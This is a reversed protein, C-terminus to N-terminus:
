PGSSGEDDGDGSDASSGAPEDDSSYRGGAPGENDEYEEDADDDDSDFDSMNGPWPCLRKAPPEDFSTDEEEEEEEKVEEASSFGDWSFGDDDSEEESEGIALFRLDSEGDTLSQDDESWVSSDHSSEDGDAIARRINAAHAEQPNWEPTPERFPSSQASLGSSSSYSSSMVASSPNQFHQHSPIFLLFYKCFKGDRGKSKSRGRDTKSKDRNYNNYNNNRNETRGRVQLAEAKSSSGEAQVMSKMKERQQLAEYVEALTLEDRSYLLTDRFNAFSNPLSVLLILALDEDDYNVEMSLLDSIIERFISLHNMMSAGEQLKHSFLKMKVHMKSTLDKSMCISELKLWLAAASKEALVEQLINNSLHLQILSFAKRDKRKEDDTWTKADKKGFGDLAEDLDSSQTLIARMKVQWLSFRTTYDLQPLDFKLSSM